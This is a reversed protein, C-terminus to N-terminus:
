RLWGTLWRKWWPRSAARFIRCADVRAEHPMTASAYPLIDIFVGPPLLLEMRWNLDEMIGPIRRDDEVGLVLVQRAEKDGDIYCQPLYAERIGRVQRVVQGIADTMVDAMPKAPVGFFM